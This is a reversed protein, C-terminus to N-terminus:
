DTQPHGTTAIEDRIPICRSVRNLLPFSVMFFAVATTNNKDDVAIAASANETHDEVAVPCVGEFPPCPGLRASVMENM